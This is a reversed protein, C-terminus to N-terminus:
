RDNSHVAMTERKRENLGDARREVEMVSTEESSRGVGGGVFGDRLDQAIFAQVESVGENGRSLFIPKGLETV